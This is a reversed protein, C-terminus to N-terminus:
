LLTYHWFTRHCVHFLFTSKIFSYLDLGSQVRWNSQFFIILHRADCHNLNSLVKYM